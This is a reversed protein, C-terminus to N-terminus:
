ILVLIFEKALSLKRYYTSQSIGLRRLTKDTGNGPEEHRADGYAPHARYEARLVEACLEFRKQPKSIWSRRISDYMGHGAVQLQMVAAEVEEQRIMMVQHNQKPGNGTSPAASSYGLSAPCAGGQVWIAWEELLMDLAQETMM